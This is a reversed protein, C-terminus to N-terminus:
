FIVGLKVAHVFFLFFLGRESISNKSVFFLFSICSCLSFPLAILLYLCVVKATNWRKLRSDFGVEASSPRRHHPWESAAPTIILRRKLTDESRRTAYLAGSCHLAYMSIEVPSRLSVSFQVALVPRMRTVDLFIWSSQPANCLRSQYM